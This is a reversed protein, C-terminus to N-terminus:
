RQGLLDALTQPYTSGMWVFVLDVGQHGYLKAARHAFFEDSTERYVHAFLNSPNARALRLRSRFAVTAFPDVWVKRRAPVRLLTRGVGAGGM